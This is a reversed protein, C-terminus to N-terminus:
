AVAVALQEFQYRSPWIDEPKMNLADAIIKEGKPYPRALANYLTSSALGERLSLQKLTLGSKHLAAVIDVRHMDSTENLM